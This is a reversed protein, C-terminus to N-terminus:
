KRRKRPAAQADKDECQRKKTEGVGLAREIASADVDLDESRQQRDDVHVMGQSLSAVSHSLVERTHRGSANFPRM